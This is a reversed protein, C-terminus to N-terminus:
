SVKGRTLTYRHLVQGTRRIIEPHLIRFSEPKLPIEEVVERWFWLKSWFGQHRCHHHSLLLRKRNGETLARVLPRGTVVSILWDLDLTKFVALAVTTTEQYENVSHPAGEPYLLRVTTRSGADREFGSVPANNM